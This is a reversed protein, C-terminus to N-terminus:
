NEVKGLYVNTCGDLPNQKLNLSRKESAVSSMYHGDGDEDRSLFLMSIIVIAMLVFLLPDRPM